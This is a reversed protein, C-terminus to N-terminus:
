NGVTGALHLTIPQHRPIAQQIPVAAACDHVEDFTQLAARHREHRANVLRRVLSRYQGSLDTASAMAGPTGDQLTTVTGQTDVVRQAAQEVIPVAVRALRPEM